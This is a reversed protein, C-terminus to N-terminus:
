RTLIRFIKNLQSTLDAQGDNVVIFDSRKRKEEDDMQAQMRSLIQERSAHDRDMARTLRIELPAYVMLVYDVATEFNAEFLIASEMAMVSHTVDAEAWALFDRYVRPHVIHNIREANERSAFLYKALKPKNLQGDLYVDKGLLAILDARIGDDELMLRKAHADTDYVPVGMKVLMAAVYSKGSGIGGTIGLKVMKKSM